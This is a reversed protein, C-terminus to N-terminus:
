IVSKIPPFGPLNTYVGFFGDCKENYLCIACEPFKQFPVADPFFVAAKDLQRNWKVLWRNATKVTYKAYEGLYCLPLGKVIVKLGNESLYTTADFLPKRTEEFSPIQTTINKAAVGVPFPFTLINTQVDPFGSLVKSIEPLQSFTEKTIVTNTQVRTGLQLLNGLGQLVRKNFASQLDKGHPYSVVVRDILRASEQTFLRDSFREGVSIVVVEKIGEIEKIDRLLGFLGERLTPESGSFLVRKVGREGFYRINELIEQFTMDRGTEDLRCFPCGMKCNSGGEIEVLDFKDREM